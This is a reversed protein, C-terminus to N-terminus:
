PTRLAEVVDADDNDEDRVLLRPAVVVEGGYRDLGGEVKRIHAGDPGVEIDIADM